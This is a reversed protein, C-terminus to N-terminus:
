LANKRSVTSAQKNKRKINAFAETDEQKKAEIATESAKRREVIRLQVAQMEDLTIIGDQNTDVQSFHRAVQPLSDTAEQRDLSGDNDKDSALFREKISEQMARRRELIQEHDPDVTRSYADLARRLRLRDEPSFNLNLTQQTGDSLVEDDVVRKALESKSIDQTNVLNMKEAALVQFTTGIGICLSLCATVRACSLLSLAMDSPAQKQPAALSKHSVSNLLYLM